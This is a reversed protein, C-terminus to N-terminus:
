QARGICHGVQEIVRLGEWRLRECEILSNTISNRCKTTARAKLFGDVELMEGTGPFTDAAHLLHLLEPVRRVLETSSLQGSAKRLFAAAEERLSIEVEPMRANWPDRVFGM